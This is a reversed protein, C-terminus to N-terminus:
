GIARIASLRIYFRGSIAAGISRSNARCGQEVNCICCEVCDINRNKRDRGVAQGLVKTNLRCMLYQRLGACM